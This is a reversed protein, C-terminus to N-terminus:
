PGGGQLTLVCKRRPSSNPPSRWSIFNYINNESEGHREDSLGPIKPKSFFFIIYSQVNLSTNLINQQVIQELTEGSRFMRKQCFEFYGGLAM